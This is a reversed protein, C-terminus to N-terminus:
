ALYNLPQRRIRQGTLSDSSPGCNGQITPGLDVGSKGAALYKAPDRWSPVAASVGVFLWCPRDGLRGKSSVPLHAAPLTEAGDAAGKGLASRNWFGESLSVCCIEEGSIPL